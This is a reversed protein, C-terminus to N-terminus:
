RGGRVLQIMPVLLEDPTRAGHFGVNSTPREQYRSDFVVARRPLAVLLDGYRAAVDRPPAAIWGENVAETPTRVADLGFRRSWRHKVDDSQAADCYLIQARADGGM